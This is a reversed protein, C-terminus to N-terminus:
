LVVINRVVGFVVLVAICFYLTLNQIRSLKWTGTKIYGTIQSLFIVALVPLLLFVVPNSYFATQFDLCLLAMCMRTVGCGPCLFGTMKHFLCPVAWGTKQVFAAYGLGATLLLALCGAAKLFRKKM